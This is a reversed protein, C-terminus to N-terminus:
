RSDKGAQTWDHKESAASDPRAVNVAWDWSHQKKVYLTSNTLSPLVSQETERIGNRLICDHKESAASDPRAVNVAWDWSRQKKVYLTSNTLSPLVSQETERIGNRLICHATQKLITEELQCFHDLYMEHISNRLICHATQRQITEKLQCFHDSSLRLILTNYFSYMYLTSVGLMFTSVGLMLWFSSLSCSMNKHRFPFHWSYFCVSRCTALVTENVYSPQIKTTNTTFAEDSSHLINLTSVWWISTAKFGQFHAWLWCCHKWTPWQRWDTYIVWIIFSRKQWIVAYMYVNRM